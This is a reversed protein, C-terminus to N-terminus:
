GRDFSPLQRFGGRTKGGIVVEGNSELWAHARLEHSELAVGVKVLARYGERSLTIKGALAQELCRFRLPSYSSIALVAWVIKEPDLKSETELNRSISLKEVIELLKGFSLFRLGIWIGVLISASRVILIRDDNSLAIFKILARM